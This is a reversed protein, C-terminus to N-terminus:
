WQDMIADLEDMDLESYQELMKALNDPHYKARIKPERVNEWLLQRFRHKYKLAYFMERFRKIADERLVYDIYFLLPNYVCRRMYMYTCPSNAFIYHAFTKAHEIYGRVDQLRELGYEKQGNFANEIVNDVEELSRFGYLQLIDTQLYDDASHFRTHSFASWAKKLYIKTPKFYDLLPKLAPNNTMEYAHDLYIYPFMRENDKLKDHVFESRLMCLMRALDCDFPLISFLTTPLTPLVETALAFLETENMENM